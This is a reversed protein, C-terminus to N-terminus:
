GTAISGSTARSTRKSATPIPTARPTWGSAAGDSATTRRPSCATWRSRTPTRREQRGPIRGAEAVTPPLGILDLSLRRLLTARDAEPSPALNERELAGSRLTSRIRRGARCEQGGAASSAAAPHFGLAEQDRGDRYRSTLGSPARDIWERILAIKAPPLPKGGMPMRAQDGSGLIRQLLLSDTAKGAVIAKGSQGGSMATAKADLRLGGLQAKPGHCSYCSQALIPQVDRAFDVDAAFGTTVFLASLVLPLNRLLTTRM